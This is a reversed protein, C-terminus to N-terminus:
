SYYRRHTQSNPGEEDGNRKGKKLIEEAYCILTKIEAWNHVTVFDSTNKNWPQEFKVSMWGKKEFDCLNKTRDDFLLDGWVIGKQRAMIVRDLPFFPLHQKIWAMKDHAGTPSLPLTTLIFIEHDTWSLLWELTEPAGTLPCLNQFFKNEEVIAFLDDPSKVYKGIDWSHIDRAEIKEGTKGNYIKLWEPVMSVIVDDLDFFIRM